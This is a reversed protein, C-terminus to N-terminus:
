INSMYPHKRFYPYGLIMWKYIPNEMFYVMWLNPYGCKHFGKNTYIWYNELLKIIGRNKSVGMHPLALAMFRTECTICARL